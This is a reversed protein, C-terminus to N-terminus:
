KGDETFALLVNGAMGANVSYGSTVFLTSGAVVPGAYNPSGGHATVGNVTSFDIASDFDWLAKGDATDYARLHGDLSGSFVVGAIATAPAQQSAGCGPKPLCGPAVPPTEWVKKGTAIELAFMGGGTKPDQSWDSLPYYVRDQDAAGGFEIGGLPGGKGIRTQWVVNGKNDPDLGFAVGSKQGVLLLSKGTALKHLIPPAGIDFDGGPNKPCNPNGPFFCAINFRDGSTLQKTWLAKGSELDLAIVADSTASAPESYNDGTGFYLAHRDPDVTPSSWVAAGSPGIMTVGAANTSSKPEEPITYTKWLVKGTKEDLANMSGRFTCCKYKPNTAALEEASSVPVYLKGGYLKPAGSIMAFPHEDLDTKWRLAGNSTDIAYARGQMDGFFATKGDDSVTIATRAHGEPLFTWYVCGSRRDLSYVQGDGGSVILREGIVTPPGGASTAGAYGFAWKVKLRPIQAKTLGAAKEPQFRSNSLDSGWGNWLPSNAMPASNAPCANVPAKRAVDPQGLYSAVSAREDHSMGDGVSKMKGSELANLITSRMMLRLTDEWPARTPNFPAHCSQCHAAFLAKGDQASDSTQAFLLPAGAAVVVIPGCWSLFAKSLSITM